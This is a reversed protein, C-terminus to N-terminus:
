SVFRALKDIIWLASMLMAFCLVVGSAIIADVMTM